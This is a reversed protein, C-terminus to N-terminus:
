DLRSIDLQEDLIRKLTQIQREMMELTRAAAAPDDLGRRKLIEIGIALPALSGRLEHNLTECLSHIERGNCSM